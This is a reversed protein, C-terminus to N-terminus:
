GIPAVAEEMYYPHSIGPATCLHEERTGCSQEMLSRLGSSCSPAPRGGSLALQSLSHPQERDGLSGCDKRGPGRPGM